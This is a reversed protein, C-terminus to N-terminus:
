ALNSEKRREDDVELREKLTDAHKKQCDACPLEKDMQETTLIRAKCEPCWM